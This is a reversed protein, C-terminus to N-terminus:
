PKPCHLTNSETIENLNEALQELTCTPGLPKTLKHAFMFLTQSLAIVILNHKISSQDIISPKYYHLGNLLIQFSSEAYSQQEM